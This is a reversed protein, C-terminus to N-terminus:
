DREEVERVRATVMAIDRLRDAHLVLDRGVRLTRRECRVKMAQDPITELDINHALGLTRRIMACGAFRLADKLLRDMFAEQAVRLSAAGEPGDFMAKPYADGTPRGNWLELFRASFRRWITEVTTLIWDRYADRGGPTAEHGSQAIFCLILNGLLKGVDFAIPGVFSFEPDIVRTDTETIMISGTHLDGHLLAQAESLFKLKLAAVERKLEHDDRVAAADADLEPSTWRNRESIVYPDTFILDETIRCLDTNGAFRAIMAKKQVAPLALDSTGYLSAAMYEAIHRAFEPYAIGDIMGRRMIVHPTLREMVILYMEPDYHLPAPILGPALRGHTVAAEHEYFARSLSLPWSEGVLRVYPLAQKVCVSGVPGEVLFVLNLNGDGVERVQWSASAGGLRGALDPVGALWGAVSGEDLARYGDPTAIAMDSGM